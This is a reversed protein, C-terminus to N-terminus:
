GEAWNVWGGVRRRGYSVSFFAVCGVDLIAVVRVWLFGETHGKNAPKEGWPLCGVWEEKRWGGM